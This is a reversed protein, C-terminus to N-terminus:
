QYSTFGISALDLGAESLLQNWGFMAAGMATNGLENYFSEAAASGCQTFSFTLTADKTYSSLTVPAIGDCCYNSNNYSAFGFDFGSTISGQRGIDMLGIMLAQANGSSDGMVYGFTLTFKDNEEDYQIGYLAMNNGSNEKYTIQKKGSSDTEDSKQIYEYLVDYNSKKTTTDTTTGTTNNTTEFSKFGIDKMSCDLYGLLLGNWGIFGVDLLKDAIFQYDLTWGYDVKDGYKYDAIKLSGYEEDYRWVKGSDDLVSEYWLVDANGTLTNNCTLKVHFHADTFDISSVFEFQNKDKLYNISLGYTYNGDNISGTLCYAGEDNVTGNKLLYTKLKSANSNDQVTITCSAKKGGATATILASGESIATVIGESSVRAVSLNSSSWTVIKDTADSPTITAKLTIMDGVEMDLSTKDLTVATVLVQAKKVTITCTAKKGGATATIQTSGESIATVIGESSVKAVSEDGSSWKVTNDTVNSPTITAKLALTTGVEMDASQKDLTVATVGIVNQTVTITCIASKEGATAIIRASGESFATVKGDESVKAVSEDSSSWKVTKDTANDPTVTANLTISDGIKLDATTKDLQIDTVKIDAAQVKEESVTITCIASKEGAVAIIRATGESIATVRGTTSVKAVSENSTSWEVNKDTANEPAVTAKLTIVDGIKLDATDKDLKIDTVEVVEQKETNEKESDTKESDVVTITCTASVDGATATIDITGASIATVEGDESVEAIDEDDTEWEVTKDTANSPTITAKLNMIEGVELTASEKNLKIGTVDIDEAEVSVSCKVTTGSLKAYITAEGEGVATVKGINKGKSAVKAVKQNSSSWKVTKTVGTVTLTDTDGAVLELETSDIKVSPVTVICTFKKGSVKGTITAKGPSWATVKGKSNVKAVSKKSSSWTVKKSTGSIKLTKTDGVKITTKKTSIKMKSAAQAVYVTDGMVPTVASTFALVFSLFCSKVIKSRKGM